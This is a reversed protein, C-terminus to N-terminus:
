EQCVNIIPNRQVCIPMIEGCEVKWEKHRIRDWNGKKRLEEQRGQFHSSVTCYYCLILLSVETCITIYVPIYSVLHSFPITWAICEEEEM